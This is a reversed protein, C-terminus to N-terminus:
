QDEEGETSERHGIAGSRITRSAIAAEPRDAMWRDLEALTKTALQDNLRYRRYSYFGAGGWLLLGLLSIWGQWGIVHIGVVIVSLVMWFWADTKESRYRSARALMAAEHTGHRYGTLYHEGDQWNM